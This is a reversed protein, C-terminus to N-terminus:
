KLIMSGNFGHIGLQRTAKGKGLINKYQNGMKAMLTANEM